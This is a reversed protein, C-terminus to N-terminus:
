INTYSMKKNKIKRIEHFTFINEVINLVDDSLLGVDFFYVMLM